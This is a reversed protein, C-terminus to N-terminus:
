FLIIKFCSNRQGEQLLLTTQVVRRRILNVPALVQGHELHVAVRVLDVTLVQTQEGLEEEVVLRQVVVDLREEEVNEGLVVFVPTMQDAVEGLHPLM